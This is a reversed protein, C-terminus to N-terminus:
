SATKRYWRQNGNIRRHPQQYLFRLGESLIDTDLRQYEPSRKPRPAEQKNIKHCSFYDMM